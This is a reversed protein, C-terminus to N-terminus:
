KKIDQNSVYKGELIANIKENLKNAEEEGKLLAYKKYYYGSVNKAKEMHSPSEGSAAANIIKEANDRGYIEYLNRYNRTVLTFNINQSRSMTIIQALNDLKTDTVLVQAM